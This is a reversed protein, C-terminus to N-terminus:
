GPHCPSRAETPGLFTTLDTISSVPLGAGPRTLAPARQGRKPKACSGSCKRWM